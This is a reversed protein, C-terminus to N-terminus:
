FTYLEFTISNEHVKMYVWENTAVNIAAIEKGETYTDKVRFEFTLPPDGRRQALENTYEVAKLHLNTRSKIQDCLYDHFDDPSSHEGVVKFMRPAM